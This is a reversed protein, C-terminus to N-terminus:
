WSRSSRAASGVFGACQLALVVATVVEFVWPAGFMGGCKRCRVAFWGALRSGPLWNATHAVPAFRNAGHAV